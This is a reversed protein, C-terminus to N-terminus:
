PVYLDVFLFILFFLLLHQKEKLNKKPDNNKLLVEKVTNEQIGDKIIKDKLVTDTVPIDKAEEKSVMIIGQELYAKLEVDDEDMEKVEDKHLVFGKQTTIFQNMYKEALKINM